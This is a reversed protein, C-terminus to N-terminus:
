VTLPCASTSILCRSAQTPPKLLLASVILRCDNLRFCPCSRSSRLHCVVCISLFAGRLRVKNYPQTCVFRVRDWKREAVTKGQADASGSVFKDSNFMRVGQLNILDRCEQPTMMQTMPLLTQACHPPPTETSVALHSACCGNCPLHTHFFCLFGHYYITVAEPRPTAITTISSQLSLLRHM